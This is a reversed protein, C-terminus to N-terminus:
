SVNNVSQSWQIWKISKQGNLGFRDVHQKQIRQQKM